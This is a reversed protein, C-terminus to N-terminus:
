GSYSILVQFSLLWMRTVGMDLMASAGRQIYIYNFTFVIVRKVGDVEVMMVTFVLSEQRAGHPLCICEGNGFQRYVGKRLQLANIYIVQTTTAYHFMWQTCYSLKDSECVSFM